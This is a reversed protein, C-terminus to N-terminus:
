LLFFEGCPGAHGVESGFPRVLSMKLCSTINAISEPRGKKLPGKLTPIIKRQISPQVLPLSDVQWASSMLSASEIEPDPLDGETPFPSGELIRAQIIGHVSSGWPSPGCPDCLTPCWHLLQAASVNLAYDKLSHLISITILTTPYSTSFPLFFIVMSLILFLKSINSPLIWVFTVLNSDLCPSHVPVSEVHSVAPVHPASFDLIM